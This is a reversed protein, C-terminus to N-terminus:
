GISARGILKKRRVTTTSGQEIYKSINMLIGVSFLLAILSTGGFSVFPLPMGTTPLYGVVVSINIVAQILIWFTIGSALLFSYKDQSFRAIRFGRVAFLVFLALVSVGGIFGLEECLIAYIFDTTHQPLYFFKQKSGGLGLGFLGGSGVALLSQIIHFGVNTPDKWPKLFAALRRLRYPSSIAALVFAGCGCLLTFLLRYTNEGAVFLMAFATTAIILSTGLDPQRLVILVTFGLILLLFLFEKLTTSNEKSDSSLNKALFLIIAVKALESPQFSFGFVDIWRSAGGAVRGIPPIYVLLLLVIISFLIVNAWKKLVFLNITLGFILFAIGLFIHLLHRKLYYLSDGLKMGMVPSSSMVMILGVSVLALVIFLLIYDPSKTKTSKEM